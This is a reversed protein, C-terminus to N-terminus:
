EKEKLQQKLKEIQDQLEQERLQQKTESLDHQLVKERLIPFIPLGMFLPIVVQYVLVLVIVFEAVYFIM